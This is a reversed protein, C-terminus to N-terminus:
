GRPGAPWPLGSPPDAPLLVIEDLPLPRSFYFGQLYDCGILRLVRCAEATEVGEATVKLEQVHCFEVLSKLVRDNGSALSKDILKKDLKVIGIPYEVLQLLSTYGSGLDDIALQFGAERLRRLFIQGFASHDQYFTETIEVTFMSPDIGHEGALGIVKDVFDESALEAASINVSVRIQEGFRERLAASQRFAQDIVWLDIKQFIGLSEAVPIFEAPPVPGLTKSLWRLLVEFSVISGTDADVIPMYHLQLESTDLQKLQLELSQQRKAAEGQGASYFSVTNKGRKKSHYMASDASVILEDATRGDQPFTAVGISLSIPYQEEDCVFGDSCIELIRRAVKGAVDTEAYGHIIVAFEDGALRAATSSLGYKEFIIDSGRVVEHLRYAFTRLLSDGLAHGYQDNILKFNDIDIYLLAVKSDNLEARTLLKQLTLNFIRRNYLDTLTDREALKKTGEYTEKLQGFLRAFTLSLNGIEDRSNYVVIKETADLDVNSLQRELRNIPGTIYRGLLWQLVICTIGTLLLFGIILRRLIRELDAEVVERSIRLDLTGFGPLQRRAEFRGVPPLPQGEERYSITRGADALQRSRKDYEAPTLMIVVAISDGTGFELPPKLTRRDLIRCYAIFQKTPSYLSAASSRDAALEGAWLQLQPDPSSFPDLSNEYYYELAGDGRFLAISYRDSSFDALINLVGDLSSSLALSRFQEDTSDLFYRLADSQVLSALFGRAVLAHRAFSDALETAELEATNQGLRHVSNREVLYAGVAILLFSIFLVPIILAQVRRDLKM